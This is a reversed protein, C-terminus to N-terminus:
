LIRATRLTALRILVLAAAMIDLQKANNDYINGIEENKSVHVSIVELKNIGQKPFTGMIQCPSVLGWGATPVPVVRVAV